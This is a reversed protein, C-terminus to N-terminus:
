RPAEGVVEFILYMFNPQRLLDADSPPGLDRPWLDPRRHVLDKAVCVFRDSREEFYPLAVDGSLRHGFHSEWVALAGVPLTSLTAHDLTRFRTDDFRDFGGLFYFWPHNVAVVRGPRNAKVWAAAEGMARREPDLPIPREVVLTSVGAVAAVGLAWHRTRGRLAIAAAAGVAVVTWSWPEGGRWVPHEWVTLDWRFWGTLVSFGVSAAVLTWGWRPVEGFRDVGRAALIGILPGISVVHRLYGVSGGRDHADWALLALTVVVTVVLARVLGRGKVPRIPAGM